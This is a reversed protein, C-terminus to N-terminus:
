ETLWIMWSARRCPTSTRGTSTLNLPHSAPISSAPLCLRSQPLAFAPSPLSFAPSPLASAPSPAPACVRAIACFQLDDVHGEVCAESSGSSQM